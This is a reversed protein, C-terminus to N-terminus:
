MKRESFSCFRLDRSEGLRFISIILFKFDAAAGILDFAFSSEFGLVATLGGLVFQVWQV